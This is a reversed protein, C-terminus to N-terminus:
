TDTALFRCINARARHEYAYHFVATNYIRPRRLMKELFAPRGRDYAQGAVFGGGVYEQRIQTGMDCFHEWTGGLATLDIDAILDEDSTEYEVGNPVTAMILSVVIDAFDDSLGAEECFESAMVASWYENNQEGPVMEADHFWIATMVALPNKAIAKGRLEFQILLHIIHNANHYRRWPQGYQGCLKEFWKACISQPIRTDNFTTELENMLEDWSQRPLQPM